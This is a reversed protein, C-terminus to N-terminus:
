YTKDVSEQMQILRTRIEPTNTHQCLTELLKALRKSGPNPATPSSEQAASQWLRCAAVELPVNGMARAKDATHQAVDAAREASGARLALRAELLHARQEIEPLRRSRAEAATVLLPRAEDERGEDILMNAKVLTAHLHPLLLQNRLTYELCGDVLATARAAEGNEALIAAMLSRNNLAYYNASLGEGAQLAQVAAESDGLFLYLSGLTGLMKEELYSFPFQRAIARAHWLHQWCGDLDGSALCAQATAGHMEGTLLPYKMEISQELSRNASQLSDKIKGMFLQAAAQAKV